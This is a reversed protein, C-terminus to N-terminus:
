RGNYEMCVSDTAPIQLESDAAKFSVSLKSQNKKLCEDPVFSVGDLSNQPLSHSGTKVVQRALDLRASM